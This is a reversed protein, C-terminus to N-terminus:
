YEYRKPCNLCISEAKGQALNSRFDIFEQKNWINLADQEMVNGLTFRKNDNNNIPLNLYICPSITGQADVYLTSQINERCNDTVKAQPLSFSVELGMKKAQMDVINLLQRAHDIKEQESPLFALPAQEENVIYDLTSIVAGHVGLDAMLEPLKLVADMSDALMLYAIHVELHVGMLKKRINQLTNIALCTEEFGANARPLSSKIDTGVMSFAIIDMNSRVINYALDDTMKLGCTTSSIQCGAKFAFKVFDFFRKHLFPEGWGQLHIRRTNLMLPWLAAFTNVDMYCTQWKDKMITHPCYTCKGMCASTVEIQVCDLLRKKGLFAEKLSEWASPSRYNPNSLIDQM